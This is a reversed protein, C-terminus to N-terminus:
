HGDPRYRELIEQAQLYTAEIVAPCRAAKNLPEGATIDACDCGGFREGMTAQFWEALEPVMQENARDPAALNLMCAAGTLAGCVMGSQVGGCLGSVAQLLAPNAEGRDELALQVLAVACCRGERLLQKLREVDNGM